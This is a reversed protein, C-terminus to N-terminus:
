RRDLRIRRGNLPQTPRNNTGTVSAFRLQGLAKVLVSLQAESMQMPEDLVFWRVQESCPPTTLSGRYRFTRHDAPILRGADIDAELEYEVGAIRPLMQALRDADPWNANHAGARIMVAVVAIRGDSAKHVLHMEVPFHAGDEFTHESPTHFHFQLLEFQNRGVRISSGAEYKFEITHGNNLVTIPSSQYSFAVGRLNRKAAGLVEIDIPSQASGDGCVTWAPDLDGWSRPNTEGSYSFITENNPGELFVSGEVDEAQANAVLVMSVGMVTSVLGGLRNRQTM